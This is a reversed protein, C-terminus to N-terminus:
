DQAPKAQAPKTRAPRSKAATATATAAKAAPEKVARASAPRPQELGAAAAKRRPAAATAQTAPTDTAAKRPPAPKRPVAAPVAAAPVPTVAPASPAPAPAAAGAPSLMSHALEDALDGDAEIEAATAATAASATAATGAAVPPVKVRTPDWKEFKTAAAELKDLGLAKKSVLDGMDRRVEDLGSSRAADDMASQFERAMGRLKGTFRGLTHFMRPLDKPGVVILAVIGILLLESWGVDLM